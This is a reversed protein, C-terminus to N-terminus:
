KISKELEYKNHRILEKALYEVESLPIEIEESLKKKVWEKARGEDWKEKCFLFSVIEKTTINYLAKIGSNREINITRIEGTESKDTGVHIYKETNNAEDRPM